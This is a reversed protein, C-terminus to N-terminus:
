CRCNQFCEPGRYGSAPVDLCPMLKALGCDALRPEYEADLIVNTPKLNCHLIQPTCSFHLYHLGKIIGVAIRLRVEWGLQLQNDRVRKMADELSGNPMYDYVLSYRDTEWIYARLSMLNRHRLSALMELQQQIRGKVSKNQAELSCNEFPELRKVAVTLGNDLVTKYYRGNASSGLLQNESSLALQLTRPAIKPSFIVPGRLIPTRRMYHVIFRILCAFLLACILGTLVGLLISLGIRRLQNKLEPARSEAAMRKIVPLECRVTHLYLHLLFLLYFTINERKEM